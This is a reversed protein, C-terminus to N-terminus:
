RKLLDVPEDADTVRFHPALAPHKREVARFM